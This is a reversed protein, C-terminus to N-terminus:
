VDQFLNSVGLSMNSTAAGVLTDMAASPAPAPAINAFAPGVLDGVATPETQPAIVYTYILYVALIGVVVKLVTQTQPMSVASAARKLQAGVVSPPTKPTWTAPDGGLTKTAALPANDLIRTVGGPAVTCCACTQGQPSDEGTQKPGNVASFVAQNM